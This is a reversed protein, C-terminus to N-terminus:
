VQGIAYWSIVTNATDTRTLYINCGRPTIDSANCSLQAVGGDNVLPNVAVFPKKSYPNSFMLAEATPTNPATPYFSVIGWQTLLNGNIVYGGYEDGGTIVSGGGGSSSGELSCLVIGDALNESLLSVICSDGVQMIGISDALRIMPTVQNDLIPIIVEATRTTQNITSIIGKYIM